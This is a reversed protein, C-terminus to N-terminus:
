SPANICGLWTRGRGVSLPLSQHLSIFQSLFVQCKKLGLAVSALLTVHQHRGPIRRYQESGGAHVLKFIVEQAFHFQIECSGCCALLAQPGAIDVVNTPGSIVVRKELHQAIEAKTIVELAHCDAPGPFKEGIGGPQCEVLVSQIDRDINIVVFRRLDPMLLDPKTCTADRPHPFVIVEPRGPRGRLSRISDAARAALDKVNIVRAALNLDPIKDERLEITDAIRGIIEPREGALVNIGAHAQFACRCNQLAHVRVIVDVNQARNDLGNGLDTSGLVVRRALRPPTQPPDGIMQSGASKGDMLIDVRTGILFLVDNAAEQPPGHQVAVLETQSIREQVLKHGHHGSHHLMGIRFKSFGNIADGRDDLLFLVRKEGRNVSSQIPNVRDERLHFRVTLQQDFSCTGRLEVLSVAQWWFKDFRHCGIAVKGEVPLTKSSGHLLM